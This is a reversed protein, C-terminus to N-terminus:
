GPRQRQQAVMRQNTLWTVIQKGVAMGHLYFAVDDVIVLGLRMFDFHDADEVIPLIGGTLDALWRKSCQGPM